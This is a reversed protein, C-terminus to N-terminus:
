VITKWGLGLTALAGISHHQDSHVVPTHCKIRKTTDLLVTTSLGVSIERVRRTNFNLQSSNSSDNYILRNLDRGLRIQGSAPVNYAM